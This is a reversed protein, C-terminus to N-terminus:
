LSGDFIDGVCAEDVCQKNRQVLEDEYGKLAALRFVKNSNCRAYYDSFPINRYLLHVGSHHRCAWEAKHWDPAHTAETCGTMACVALALAAFKKVNM